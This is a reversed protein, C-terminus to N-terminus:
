ARGNGVKENGGAPRQNNKLARGFEEATAILGISLGLFIAKPIDMETGGFYDILVLGTFIFSALGFLRAVIPLFRWVSV